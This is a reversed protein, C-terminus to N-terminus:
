INIHRRMNEESWIRSITTLVDFDTSYYGVEKNNIDFGYILEYFLGKNKGLDLSRFAVAGISKLERKAKEIMKARTTKIM